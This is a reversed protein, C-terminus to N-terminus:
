GHKVKRSLSGNDCCASKVKLSIIEGKMKKAKLFEKLRKNDEKILNESLKELVSLVLFRRFIDTDDISYHIWKGQKRDKILGADKLV